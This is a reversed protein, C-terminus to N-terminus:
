PLLTHERGLKGITDDFLAKEGPCGGAACAVNDNLHKHRPKKNITALHSGAQFDKEIMPNGLIDKDL